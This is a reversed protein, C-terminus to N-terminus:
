PICTVPGGGTPQCTNGSGSDCCTSQCQISSTCPQGNGLSGTGTALCVGGSCTGSACEVNACCPTSTDNIKQTCQSVGPFCTDNFSCFLAPNCDSDSACPSSVVGPGLPPGDSTFSITRRAQLGFGAQANCVLTFSGPNNGDQFSGSMIGNGDTLGCGDKPETFRAVAPDDFACCIQVGGIGVGSGDVLQTRFGTITRGDAPASSPASLSLCSGGGTQGEPSCSQSVFQGFAANGTNAGGGTSGCSSYLAILALGVGVAVGSSMVMMLPKKMDGERGMM